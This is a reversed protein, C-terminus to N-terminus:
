TNKNSSLFSVDLKRAKKHAFRCKLNHNVQHKLNDKWMNSSWLFLSTTHYQVRINIISALVKSFFVRSIDPYIKLHYLKKLCRSLGGISTGTIKNINSNMKAHNKTKTKIYVFHFFLKITSYIYRGFEVTISVTFHTRIFLVNPARLYTLEEVIFLNPSLFWFSFGLILKLM